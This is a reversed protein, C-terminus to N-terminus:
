QVLKKISAFPGPRCLWSYYDVGFATGRCYVAFTQKTEMSADTSQAHVKLGKQLADLPPVFASIVGAWM